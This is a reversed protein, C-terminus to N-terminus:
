LTDDLKDTTVKIADVNADVTAIDADTATHADTVTTTTALGSGKIEELTSVSEQFAKLSHTDSTFGAGMIELQNALTADGGTGSPANALSATTFEFTGGNDVLTDDLKDTTVKIADIETDKTGATLTRTISGWVATATDAVLTGYSTLTRTGSAWVSSGIATLATANPADVLDMEDGARAIITGGSDASEVPFATSEDYKGSTIANDDLFAGNTGTITDLDDQAVQIQAPLTVGTDDLIAMINTNNTGVPLMLYGSTSDPIT